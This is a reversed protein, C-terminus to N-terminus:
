RAAPAAAAAPATATPSLGALWRQIEKMAAPRELVTCSFDAYLTPRRQSFRFVTPHSTLVPFQSPDLGLGASEFQRGLKLEQLTRVQAPTLAIRARFARPPQFPKRVAAIPEGKVVIRALDNEGLGREHAVTLHSIQNPDFGMVAAAVTDVAVVDRGAMVIGMKVPTGQVPGQGEMGVLGDVVTLRPHVISTLDSLVEDIQDHYQDRLDGKPLLGFWNKMGVTIGTLQHTKLPPMDIVLNAQLLTKAIRYEPNTLGQRRVVVQEDKELDVLEAGKQKAMETYGYLRFAESTDIASNEAIVIRCTRHKKLYDVVGAVVRVDTVMGIHPSNPDMYTTLNIKIVVTDGNRVLGELGGSLDIAKAVMEAPDEGRVIAVTPPGACGAILVALLVVTVSRRLLSM